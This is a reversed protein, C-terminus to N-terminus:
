KTEARKFRRIWLWGSFLLGAALALVVMLVFRVEISLSGSGFVPSDPHLVSGAPLLVAWIGVGFIFNAGAALPLSGLVSLALQLVTEAIAIMLPIRWRPEDFFFGGWTLQMVLLSMPLYTLWYALATRGIALSARQVAARRLLLGVLGALAALLFLILGAWVWAGHFYVLRINIGLTREAPSLFATLGLVILCLLTGWLLYHSRKLNTLSNRM